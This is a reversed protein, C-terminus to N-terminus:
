GDLRGALARAAEAVQARLTSPEVSLLSPGLSLLRRVLEPSSPDAFLRRQLVNGHWLDQQDYHWNQSAFYRAGPPAVRIVVEERDGSSWVGFTSRWSAAADLCRPEFREDLVRLGEIYVLNFIGPAERDESEAIVYVSGDTHRVHLPCVTRERPPTDKWPSAYSFCVVRREATAEVLRLVVPDSLMSADTRDSTFSELLQVLGERSTGLAEAIRLRLLGLAEDIEPGLAHEGLRLALALALLERRESLLTGPFEWDTDKLEWGRDADSYVLPALFDDRLRNIVRRATPISIEEKEALWRANPYRGSKVAELFRLARRVFATGGAGM